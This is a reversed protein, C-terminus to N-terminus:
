AKRLGSAAIAIAIAAIAFAGLGTVLVGSYNNASVLTATAAPGLGAGAGSAIGGATVVAGGPDLDALISQIYPTVFAWAVSHVPWNKFSSKPTHRSKRAVCLM